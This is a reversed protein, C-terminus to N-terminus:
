HGTNIQCRTQIEASGQMTKIHEKPSNIAWLRGEEFEADSTLIQM